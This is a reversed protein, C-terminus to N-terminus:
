EYRGSVANRPRSRNECSRCRDYGPTSPNGCTSCPVKAAHHREHQYALRCKRCYRRTRGDKGTFLYLNDGALRHGARRCTRRHRGKNHSTGREHLEATLAHKHRPDTMLAGPFRRRYEASTLEHMQRVHQGVYVFPGGGCIVCYAGQGRRKQRAARWARQYERTTRGVGRM